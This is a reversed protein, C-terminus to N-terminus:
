PGSTRREARRELLGDEFRLLEQAEAVGEFEHRAERGFETSTFPDLLHSTKTPFPTKITTKITNM